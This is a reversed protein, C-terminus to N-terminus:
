TLPCNPPDHQTLDDGMLAMTIIATMTEPLQCIGFLLRGRDLTIQVLEEGGSSDNREDCPGLVRGAYVKISRLNVSDYLVINRRHYTSTQCVAAETAKIVGDQVFGVAVRQPDISFICEHRLARESLFNALEHDKELGCIADQIAVDDLSYYREMDKFAGKQERLHQALVDQLSKLSGEEKAEAVMREYVSLLDEDPSISFWVDKGFVVKLGQDTRILSMAFVGLVFAILCYIVLIRSSIGSGANITVRQGGHSAEEDSRDKSM